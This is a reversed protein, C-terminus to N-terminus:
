HGMRCLADLTLIVPEFTKHLVFLITNVFARKLLRELEDPELQHPLISISVLHQM